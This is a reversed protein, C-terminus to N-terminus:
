SVETTCLWGSKARKNASLELIDYPVPVAVELDQPHQQNAILRTIENQRSAKQAQGWGAQSGGECCQVVVYDSHSYQDCV